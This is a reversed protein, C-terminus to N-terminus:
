SETSSATSVSHEGCPLPGRLGSDQTRLGGILDLLELEMEAAIRGLAALEISPEQGSLHRRAQGLAGLAWQFNGMVEWYFARERDV